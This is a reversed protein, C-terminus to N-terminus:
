VFYMRWSISPISVALMILRIKGKRVWDSTSVPMPFLLIENTIITRTAWSIRVRLWVAFPSRRFQILRWTVLLTLM